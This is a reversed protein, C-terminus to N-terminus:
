YRRAEAQEFVPQLVVQGNEVGASKGMVIGSGGYRVPAYCTARFEATDRIILVDGPVEGQIVRVVRAPTGKSLESWGADPQEFQVEVVILDPAISSPLKRHIVSLDASPTYIRCAEAPFAAFGAIGAFLLLLLKKM